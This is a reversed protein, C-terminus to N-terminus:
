YARGIWRYYSINLLINNLKENMKKTGKLSENLCDVYNKHFVSHHTIMTTSDILPAYDSYTNRLKPLVQVQSFINFIFLNVISFCIVRTTTTKM